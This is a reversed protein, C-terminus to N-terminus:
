SPHPVAGTRPEPSVALIAGRSTRRRESVGIERPAHTPLLLVFRTGEGARTTVTVTGGLARVAAAVADMGVGRGSTETVEDATSLGPAFLLAVHEDDSMGEARVRTVVGREIAKAVLKDVRVGSGDDSVEIRLCDEACRVVLKVTAVEPKEGRDEPYEVGHDIANRIIHPLVAFVPALRPPVLVGEGEVAFTIHKGLRDAQIKAAERIPGTLARAPTARMAEVAEAVRARADELSSAQRVRTLLQELASAQVVLEPKVDELDIHLLPHNKQLFDVISARASALHTAEIVPSAELGHVHTALEALGLQALLGKGTHLVRRAVAQGGPSALHLAAQSLDTVYERVYLGFWSKFRVIELMARAHEADRRAGILDSIDDLTFLVSAVKGADDRIIAPTLELVREGVTIRRPIQELLVEEPLEDYFIQEVGVLLGESAQRDVGLLLDLRSGLVAGDESRFFRSCSSSYGDLVKCEADVRFLAYRVHDLITRVAQSRIREEEGSFDSFILTHGISAGTTDTAAAVTLHLRLPTTLPRGEAPVSVAGAWSGTRAVTAVVETWPTNAASALLALPSRGARPDVLKGYGDNRFLERGDHRLGVIGVRDTSGLVNSLHTRAEAQNVLERMMPQMQVRWRTESTTINRWVRGLAEDGFRAEPPLYFTSLHSTGEVLTRVEGRTSPRDSLSRAPAVSTHAASSLHLSLFASANFHGSRPLTTRFRGRAAYHVEQRVTFLMLAQDAVYRDLARRAEGDDGLTTAARAFAADYAADRLLSGPGHSSLFFFHHFLADLIPNDIPLVCFDFGEFRDVHADHASTRKGWESRPVIEGELHVGVRSLFERVAFFLTASTEVVLGRLRLDGVGADALMSRALEPDYLYRATDDAFGEQEPTALGTQPAGMGHEAVDVLLPRHLAHNLARRVRVDSLAGLNRLLFVQSLAAPKSEVHLETEARLRVADHADLNWAVDARGAVLADFWQKQRVIPLRVVDVTARGAWHEPNRRLVIERGRDWSELKYAGTGIPRTAFSERGDRELVGKPYIQSFFLRRLWMADPVVTEFEVTHDGRRRVHKLPGFAGAGLVTPTPERHAKFTALVDDASFPSGDHFRVGKRLTLEWTTPSTQRWSTALGPRVAGDSDILVLADNIATVVSFSDPDFAQFAGLGPPDVSYLLVTCSDSSQSVLVDNELGTEGV